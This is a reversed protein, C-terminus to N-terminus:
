FPKLTEAPCQRSVEERVAHFLELYVEWVTDALERFSEHRFDGPSLYARYVVGRCVVGDNSATNVVGTVVFSPFSPRDVHFTVWARRQLANSVAAGVANYFCYLFDRFSLRTEVYRDGACLWCGVSEVAGRFREVLPTMHQPWGDVMDWWMLYPELLKAFHGLDEISDLDFTPGMYEAWGILETLDPRLADYPAVFQILKTLIWSVTAQKNGVAAAPFANSVKPM